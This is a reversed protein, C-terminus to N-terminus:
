RAAAMRQFGSNQNLLQAKAKSGHVSNNFHRKVKTQSSLLLWAM